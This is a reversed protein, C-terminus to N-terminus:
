ELVSKQSAQFVTGNFVNFLDGGLHLCLLETLTFPEPIKFRCQANRLWGFALEAGRLTKVHQGVGVYGAYDELWRAVLRAGLM